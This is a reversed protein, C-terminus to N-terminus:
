CHGPRAYVTIVSGDTTRVSCANFHDALTNRKVRAMADDEVTVGPPSDVAVIRYHALMRARLEDPTVETGYLSHSAAPGRARALDVGAVPRSDALEWARRKVSLYVVGDDPRTTERLTAALATMDDSRSASTRLELATPVVMACAVVAAVVAGARVGKRLRLARNFAAGLLLALGAAGYVVYRDLYLPKALSLLMLLGTPALFLGLGLAVLRGERATRTRRRAGAVAAAALATGVMLSFRVYEVSQTADLWGVQSSQRMSVLVLPSLGVAVSVASAAFARRRARPVFLAHAAVALVAFEHLWCAALLLGVYAAWMSRRGREVARVLAYTAWVVLACVLAYSRGEQAYQQVGPLVAFVTGACLGARPGALRVALMAVGSAAAATALVSPLRLVLVDTGLADFLSHMLLYYLGHVADVRGLTQWLDPLDRSALGITVAEDHWVADGRRIGWLGLVLTLLVPVVLVRRRGLVARTRPAPAASPPPRLRLTRAAAIATEQM